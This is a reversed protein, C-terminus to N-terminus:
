KTQCIVDPIIYINGMILGRNRVMEFTFGNRQVNQANIPVDHCIVLSTSPGYEQILKKYTIKHTLLTSTHLNGQRDEISASKHIALTQCFYLTSMKSTTRRTRNQPRRTNLLARYFCNVDCSVLGLCLTAVVGAILPSLYQRIEEM